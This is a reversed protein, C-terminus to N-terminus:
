VCLLRENQNEGTRVQGLREGKGNQRQRARTYRAQRAM